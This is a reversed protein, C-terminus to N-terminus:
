TGGPWRSYVLNAKEKPFCWFNGTSMETPKGDWSELLLGISIPVWYLIVESVSTKTQMEMWDSAFVRLPRYVPSKIWGEYNSGLSGVQNIIPQSWDVFGQFWSIMQAIQAITSSFRKWAPSQRNILRLSRIEASCRNQLRNQLRPRETFM